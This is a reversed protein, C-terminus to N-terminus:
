APIIISGISLNAYEVILSIFIIYYLTYNIMKMIAATVNKM